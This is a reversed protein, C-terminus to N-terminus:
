PVTTMKYKNDRCNECKLNELIGKVIKDPQNFIYSIYLLVSMEIYKYNSRCKSCYFETIICDSMFRQEYRKLEYKAFDYADIAIMRNMHISTHYLFLEQNKEDLEDFSKKWLDFLTQNKPEDNFKVLIMQTFLDVNNRINPNGSLISKIFFNVFENFFGNEKCKDLYSLCFLDLSTSFENLYTKWYNFLKYYNDQNKESLHFEIILAFTKGFTSLKYEKTDIGGKNSKTPNSTIIKWEVLDKLYGNFQHNQNNKINSPNKTRDVKFVEPAKSLVGEQIETIKFPRGEDILFFQIILRYRQSKNSKNDIDLDFVKKVLNTKHQLSDFLINM